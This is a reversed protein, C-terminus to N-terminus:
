GRAPLDLDTTAPRGERLERSREAEANIEAAVLIALSTLWLWTLTIIVAALSGWTKSYSSFSATYVAFLASAALWIVIAVVAGPTVLQFRPPEIDPGLYLIAAFSSFLGGILIPWQVVWWIWTVLTPQGTSRGAWDAVIPGLVLLVLVLAFAVLMCGVMALAYVRQRLFGRTESREHATNLGWMLTTMAGILSWIAVALGLAFASLSESHSTTLRVLESHILTMASGPIAGHLSNMVRTITSASAVLGFLGLVAVFASPIALFLSFAVAKAVNPLSDAVTEKGARVLVARRDRRSLQRLRVPPPLRRERQEPQPQPGEPGMEVPRAIPDTVM